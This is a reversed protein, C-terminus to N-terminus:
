MSMGCNCSTAGTLWCSPMPLAGAIRWVRRLSGEVTRVQVKVGEKTAASYASERQGQYIFSDGVSLAAITKRLMTQNRNVKPIPLNKVIAFTERQGDLSHQRINTVNM